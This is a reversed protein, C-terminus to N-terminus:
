EGPIWDDLHEKEYCEQCWLTRPACKGITCATGAPKGCKCLEGATPVRIDEEPHPLLVSRMSIDPAKEPNSYDATGERIAQEMDIIYRISSEFKITAYIVSPSLIVDEGILEQVNKIDVTRGADRLEELRDLLNYIKDHIEGNTIKGM